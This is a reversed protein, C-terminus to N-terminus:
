VNTQSNVHPSLKQYNIGRAMISSMILTCIVAQYLRDNVLREAKDARRAPEGCGTLWRMWAALLVALNAFSPRLVQPSIDAALSRARGTGNRHYPRRDRFTRNLSAPAPLRVVIM